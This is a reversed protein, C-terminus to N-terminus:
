VSGVETQDHTLVLRQGRPRVSRSAGQAGRRPGGRLGQLSLCGGQWAGSLQWTRTRLSAAKELAKAKTFLAHHFPPATLVPGGDPADASGVDNPLFDDLGLRM